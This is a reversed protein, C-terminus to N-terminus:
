RTSKRDMYFLMPPIGATPPKAIRGFIVTFLLTTFLPQLLHWVPGLVTQKYQAVFDRWVFLMTLDRYRWLDALHLDFWGTKPRIVLSWAADAASAPSPLHSIPSPSSM